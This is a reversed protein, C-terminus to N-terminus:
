RVRARVRNKVPMGGCGSGCAIVYPMTAELDTSFPIGLTHTVLQTSVPEVPLPLPLPLPLVEGDMDRHSEFIDKADKDGERDDM